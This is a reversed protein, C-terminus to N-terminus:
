FKDEFESIKLSNEYEFSTPSLLSSTYSKEETSGDVYLPKVESSDLMETLMDSVDECYEEMDSGEAGVDGSEEEEEGEEEV